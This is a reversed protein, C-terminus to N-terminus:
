EVNRRSLSLFSLIVHPFYGLAYQLAESAKNVVTFAHFQSHSIYKFFYIYYYMESKLITFHKQNQGQKGLTLGFSNLSSCHIVLSKRRYLHYSYRSGPKKSRLFWLRKDMNNTIASTCRHWTNTVSSLHVLKDTTANNTWVQRKEDGNERSLHTSLPKANRSSLM